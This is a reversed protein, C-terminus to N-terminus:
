DESKQKDMVYKLKRVAISQMEARTANAPAQFVIETGTEADVATVRMSNKIQTYEFIVERKGPPPM